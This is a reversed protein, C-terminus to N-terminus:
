VLIRRDIRMSPPAATQRPLGARATRNAHYLALAANVAAVDPYPNFSAMFQVRQEIAATAFPGTRARLDALQYPKPRWLPDMPDLFRANSSNRDFAFDPLSTVNFAAMMDHDEHILNHCHFMYLGDWPEYHAEILVRENKALWVVDKLGAAEYPQVGRGSGSGGERRLIKFDVLHVHIPHTWDGSNNILEWVEVAGRQPRALVRNAVDAFGVGNILWEDGEREFRFSHDVVSRSPPFAVRRLRAPVVSTDPSALTSAVNFKMVKGTEKYDKDTGVGGVDEENRLEISQGAFQSFDFVVEWREALSMWLRNSTVPTEFLGADSGIVQFNLKTKLATSKAFFLSFSRSVSADLFRLRYKRPQVNFFPWPQGNVHIVDGWLSDREGAPSFLTGDNNYQKSTIILPIDFEGYGSPLNLASEAPDEIIYAGAQGFYANEATVAVAHDHYWMMRGEQSNPYYYDKYQGPNTTDEAWGDFPARSYSGHLHVSNPLQANNVFRVITEQGRPIIFTPGPSIGDYGVMRAPGLNPYVQQTFPKIEVEYYWIPRGTSTNTVVQLPQKVPPIPLPFNYIYKYPPSEWDKRRTLPEHDEHVHQDRVAPDMNSINYTYGEWGDYGKWITPGSGAAASAFLRLLPLAVSRTLM